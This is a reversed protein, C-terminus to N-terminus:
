SCIIEWAQSAVSGVPITVPKQSDGYNHSAILHGNLTYQKDAILRQRRERCAISWRSRHIEKKYPFIVWYNYYGNTGEISDTDLYYSIGNESKGVSVLNEAYTPLAFSLTMLFAIALQKFMTMKIM